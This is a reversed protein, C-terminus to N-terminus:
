AQSVGHAGQSPASEFGRARPHPLLVRPAAGRSSRDSASASMWIAIKPLAPENTWLRRTTPPDWVSLVEVESKIYPPPPPGGPPLMVDVRQSTRQDNVVARRLNIVEGLARGTAVLCPHRRPPSHFRTQEYVRRRPSCGRYCRAEGCGPASSFWQGAHDPPSRCPVRPPASGNRPWESAGRV